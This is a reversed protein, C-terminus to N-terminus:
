IKLNRLYDKFKEGIENHRMAYEVSAIVYGLKDGLDYRKGVFDYAMIGQEEAELKLSDTFQLEGNSAIPTKRIYDFFKGDIVYRGLPALLSKIEADTKPKEYVSRILHARGYSKVVDCSAYKKIAEKDVTQVGLVSKGYEEFCECLQQTVPKENATFMADDGNLIAVPEGNAFDEAKSVADGSGIAQYQYAFSVNAERSISKVIECEREKHRSILFEELDKDVAFHKEISKKDPSIVILIDKIGSSVIEDVILSIAPKDVVAIMEKPMAKTYPLFRTGRGAALIVAKKVLM